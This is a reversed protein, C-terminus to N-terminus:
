FRKLKILILSLLIILTTTFLSIKLGIDFPRPRYEFVVQHIGAPVKIARFILNAPSIASTIGDIKAEWGKEFQDSFVLIEDSATNTKIKVMNPSYLTISAEGKGTVSSINLNESLLTIERPDFDKDMFLNEINELSTTIIKKAFYVRELANPNELIVASRDKYIIKYGAENFKYNIYDGPIRGERDRGIGIFYKVNAIDIFPSKYNAAIEAYRTSSNRIDGGNLFNMYKGFQNLYIPDYGEISQLNYATWTNPPLVEAHERGIRFIGPQNQLFKLAPVHPFIIEKSVFTNYKLFYRGFDFVMLIFFFFLLIQIRYKILFKFKLINVIFSIFLVITMLILPIVSNRVATIFNQPLYDNSSLYTKLYEKNPVQGFINGVIYYTLITGIIIGCLAAWSWLITKQLFILNKHECIYNVTFCSIVSASLLTVLLMRSAYSSTLLPMKISYLSHSIPNDFVFLLSFLFLILFFFIEKSRIKFLAFLLLPAILTGLFGNTESYNFWGWYNRTVVNGFYDPIFFKFVDSTNLLGFNHGSTYSETQRISNQLLDASPLLQLATIGLTTILALCILSIKVKIKKDNWCLWLSYLFIIIYSYTTVQVNGSLTILSLSVILLLIFRFKEVSIFKRLSFLALPLWAMAHVTTGLEVWTTMLGGFSFIITGILRASKSKVLDSAFLYFTLSAILTQSYIFIGWGLYKPLFLLINLPYLTSSQYTALLPTGTFSYPNWLPWQWNRFAEIALNKWLFLQSFVDSILPNQVPFKYYDLWPSYSVVLLDGPFPIKGFLLFKYYFGSVISILLIVPFIKFAAIRSFIKLM